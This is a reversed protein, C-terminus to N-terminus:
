YCPHTGMGSCQGSPTPGVGRSMSVGKLCVWGRSVGVGGFPVQSWLYGSGWGSLVHTWPYGNWGAGQLFVFALSVLFCELRIRIVWKNVLFTPPPPTSDLPNTSDPPPPATWSTTSDLPITSDLLTTSDLPSPATWSPPATQPNSDLPHHQGFLHQGYCFTVNYCGGKHVSHSVSLHLSMVKGWVENAIPLLTIIM